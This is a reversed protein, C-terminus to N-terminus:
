ETAGASYVVTGEPARPGTSTDSEQEIFGGGFGDGFGDGFGAHSSASQQDQDKAASKGAKKALAAREKEEKQEKILQTAREKKAEKDQRKQEKEKEKSEAKKHKSRCATLPDFFFKQIEQIAHVPTEESDTWERGAICLSNGVLMDM